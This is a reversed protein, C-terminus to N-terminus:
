HHDISKLILNLIQNLKLNVLQLNYKNEIFQDLNKLSRLREVQNCKIGDKGLINKGREKQRGM